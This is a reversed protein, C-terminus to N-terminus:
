HDTGAVVLGTAATSAPGGRAPYEGYFRKIYNRHWRSSTHPEWGGRALLRDSIRSNWADCVIADAEKLRAIEDLVELGGHFTALTCDRTSLVYTLALFNSFRRPQKYYVLCRNGFTREHYRPGFWMVDLVSVVKPWPRFHLASFTGDIMEIVGYRGSQILDVDLTHITQWM